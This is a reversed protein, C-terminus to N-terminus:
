GFHTLKTWRIMDEPPSIHDSQQYVLGHFNYGVEAEMAANCRVIILIPLVHQKLLAGATIVV